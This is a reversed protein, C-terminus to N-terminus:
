ETRWSRRLHRDWKRNWRAKVSKETLGYVASGNGQTRLCDGCRIRYVKVGLFHRFRVSPTYESGCLPCPKLESPNDYARWQPVKGVPCHYPTSPYGTDLVCPGSWECKRCVWKM